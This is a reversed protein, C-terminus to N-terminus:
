PRRSDVMISLLLLIVASGCVWEVFPIGQKGWDRVYVLSSAVAVFALITTPTSFAFRPRLRKKKPSLTATM